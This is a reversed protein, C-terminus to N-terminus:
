LAMQEIWVRMTQLETPNLQGNEPMDEIGGQNSGRLRSYLPTAAINGPIVFFTPDTKFQQETKYTPFTHCEACRKKMLKSAAAFRQGEPTSVDIDLDAYRLKDVTSNNYHQVCGAAGILNVIFFLHLRNLRPNV